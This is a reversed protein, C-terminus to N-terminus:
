CSNYNENKFSIIILDKIFSCLDNKLLINDKM